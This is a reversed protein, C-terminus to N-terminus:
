FRTGRRIFIGYSEYETDSIVSPDGSENKLLYFSTLSEQFQKKREQAHAQYKM